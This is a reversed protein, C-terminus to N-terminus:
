RNGLHHTEMSFDGVTCVWSVQLSQLGPLLYVGESTVSQVEHVGDNDVILADNVYLQSGDNSSLRSNAVFQTGEWVGLCVFFDIIGEEENPFYFRYLKALGLFRSPILAQLRSIM